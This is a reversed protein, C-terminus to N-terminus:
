GRIFHPLEFPIELSIEVLGAVKGDKYWPTQYIMKKIGAKEITYVNTDGKDLMRKITEDSKPSHCNYMSKGILELGGWKEFTKGSKENMYIIIGDANSVTIACNLSKAWNTIEEM